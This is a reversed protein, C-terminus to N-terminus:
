EPSRRAAARAREVEALEARVGSRAADLRLVREYHAIAEDLRGLGRLAVALHYHADASDSDFRVAERYHAVAEALRGGTYLVVGLGDHALAYDPQLALAARLHEEAEARNGLQFMANGLNYHAAAASAEPAFRVAEAFHAATQGLNGVAAYRLAADNHLAVDSPDRELQKELGVIEERVVKERVASALRARDAPDRPVVQLWLDAMEDTTEQGYTVRRPPRHPNRPNDASNDYVYEMSITTGAPLFLPRVYQFVGQWDFDWERINILWTRTGDPRTAFASVEQALYHAHPQVTYVDVDTDLRFSDTVVYRREGPPIDMHQKTLRILVPSLSPPADSFYLGLRAQVAEDRGSPRLHLMMVLDSDRDIPWAMGEPAVYPVYGPVWGLFFGEPARVSHPILGEYGPEPDDEDLRRAAGSPDFEMTSHHVVRANGPLFEWAKVYRMRATDPIRLAFNRYVDEGTAQLTYPPTELVVDPTGLQWRGNWHPADPLLAPNGEPAGADVWAQVTAIQADSLRREGVFAGFGPEPKWPPMTRQLVQQKIARAWPRTEQYTLLSFPASGDPRHCSVCTDFVIPAVDESFTVPPEQAEVRVWRGALPAHGGTLAGAALVAAGISLVARPTRRM